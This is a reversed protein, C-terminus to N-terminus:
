KFSVAHKLCFSAMEHMKLFFSFFCFLATKFPVTGGEEEGPCAVPSSLNKNKEM